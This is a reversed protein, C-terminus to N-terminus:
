RAGAVDQPVLWLTSGLTAKATTMRATLARRGPRVAHAVIGDALKGRMFGVSPDFYNRYNRGRDAFYQADAPRALRPPWQPSRVCDDIAYEM